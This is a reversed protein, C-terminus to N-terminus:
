HNRQHLRANNEGEKGNILSMIYDVDLYERAYNGLKTYQAEKYAMTDVM